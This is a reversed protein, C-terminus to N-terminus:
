WTSDVANRNCCLISRLCFPHFPMSSVYTRNYVFNITVWVNPQKIPEIHNFLIKKLHTEDFTQFNIVQRYVSLVCMYIQIHNREYQM